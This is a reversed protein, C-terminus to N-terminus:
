LLDIPLPIVAWCCHYCVIVLSIHSCTERKLKQDIVHLKSERERERKREKERQEKGTLNVDITTNGDPTQQTFTITGSIGSQNFSATISLTASTLPLLSIVVFFVSPLFENYRRRLMTVRTWCSCHFLSFFVTVATQVLATTSLAGM